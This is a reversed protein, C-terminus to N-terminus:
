LPDFEYDSDSDSDDSLDDDDEEEEEEAAGPTLLAAMEPTPPTKRRKQFKMHSVVLPDSSELHAHVTDTLNKERSCKRAHYERNKRDFKNSVDLEGSSKEPM